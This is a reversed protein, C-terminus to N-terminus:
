LKQAIVDLTKRILTDIVKNPDKSFRNRIRNALIANLSIADHGLLRSMAYYGATEMEFNTVWFGEHHFFSFFDTINPYKSDVRISRGQPAYFGPCTITNGPKAISKFIEILKESGRVCYPKFGLKLDKQIKTTIENEFDSQPLDYFNMISDLGVAYESFIHSGLRLDEQVSGSTGLRIFTLKKKKQKEQRKILDINVVADLETMLVEVNDTGMGSSVVTIRKKKYTGTHTIFERKNMEFDIHDFYNSVRHVRGPDGVTIIIDAVNKPKLNLHYVSGDKNVILDSESNISPM